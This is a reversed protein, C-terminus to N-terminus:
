AADGTTMPMSVVAELGGHPHNRLQLQGQHRTVIERSIALGLGMGEHRSSQFPEGWREIVDTPM